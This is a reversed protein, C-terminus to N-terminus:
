PAVEKWNYDCSRTGECNNTGCKNADTFAQGTCVRYAQSCDPICCPLTACSQTASGICAAGGNSPAPNTCTRTQIGTTGCVTSSCPGFLSWGGDIPSSCLSEAPTTASCTGTCSNRTGPNTMGCSNPSSNCDSYTPTCSPPPPNAAGGGGAGVSVVPGGAMLSGGSPSPGSSYSGGPVFMVGAAPTGTGGGSKNHVAFGDAFFTRATDVSLNYAITPSDIREISVIQAPQLSGEEGVYVTEGEKLFRVEKFAGGGVYFPHEATARVENADTKIVYYYDRTVQYIKKVRSTALADDAFSDVVTGTIIAEIPVQGRPTDIMTGPLFCGGGGGLAAGVPLVTNGWVFLFLLLFMLLTIGLLSIRRYSLFVAGNQKQLYM